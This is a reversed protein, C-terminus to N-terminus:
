LVANNASDWIHIFEKYLDLAEQPVANENRQIMCIGQACATQKVIDKFARLKNDTLLNKKASKTDYQVVDTLPEMVATLINKMRYRKESSAYVVGIDESFFMGNASLRPFYYLFSMVMERDSHGGDECMIKFPLTFSQLVKEAAPYDLADMCYLNGADKFEKFASTDTIWANKHANEATCGIELEVVRANPLFEKWAKAGRGSSMGIEVFTFAEYRISALYQDYFWGYNHGYDNITVKDTLTATAIETFSKDSSRPGRLGQEHRQRFAQGSPMYVIIGLVVFLATLTYRYLSRMAMLIGHNAESFNMYNNPTEFLWGFEM